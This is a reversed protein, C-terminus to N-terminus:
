GFGPALRPRRPIPSLRTRVSCTGIRELWLFRFVPGERRHSFPLTPADPTLRIIQASTRAKAAIASTATRPSIFAPSKLRVSVGAPLPEADFPSLPTPHCTLTCMLVSLTSKRRRALDSPSLCLPMTSDGKPRPKQTQRPHTAM